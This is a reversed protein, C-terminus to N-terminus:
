TGGSGRARAGAPLHLGALDAASVSSCISASIARSTSVPSNSATDLGSALPGPRAAHRERRPLSRADSAGPHHAPARRRAKFTSWCSTPSRRSCATAAATRSTTSSTRTSRRSTRRSAARGARPTLPLRRAPRKITERSAWRPSRAASSSPPSATRARPRERGGRRRLLHPHRRHHLRREPDRPGRIHELLERREVGYGDWSDKNIPSVPPLTSRCRGDAPQRGAELDRRLAALGRRSGSSSASASTPARRTRPRPASPRHLQRRVAPRRPVPAPRAPVARRQAGSGCSGTSTTGARPRNRVPAFPMYEYFARYGDGRRELFPVRVQQTAEGPMRRRRLQGRGRPRGLHAMFPHAAHMARLDPRVQLATSPATSPSRRCRATATPASRTRARATTSTASTSTTASASSSTSTRAPSRRPPRRLLGGALGPLLLLRDAHARALRGAACRASAASRARARRPDRLPLLVRPRAQARKGSSARRSPTTASARAARVGQPLVVRRFDPDRAVEVLLQPRPQLRRAADLAHHRAPDRARGVRRGAPLQRGPRAPVRNRRKRAAGAGPRRARRRPDAGRHRHGAYGVFDRRDLRSSGPAGVARGPAARNRSQGHVTATSPTHGSRRSELVPSRRPGPRRDPRAPPEPEAGRLRRRRPRAAAHRADSLREREATPAYAGRATSGSTARCCTPGTSACGTSSSSRVEGRLHLAIGASASRAPRRRGARHDGRGAGPRRQDGADAARDPHGCPIGPGTSSPWRRSGSARTRRTRSPPGGRRRRSRRCRCTPRSAGAVAEDARHGAAAAAVQHPDVGAHRTAAAGRPDGADAPLPERGVPVPRHQHGHAVHERKWAAACSPGCGGRARQGQRRDGSSTAAPTSTSTPTPPAPSATPARM